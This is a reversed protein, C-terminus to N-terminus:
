DSSHFTNTVSDILLILFIGAMDLLHLGTVSNPMKEQSISFSFGNPYLIAALGHEFGTPKPKSLDCIVQYLCSKQDKVPEHTGIESSM